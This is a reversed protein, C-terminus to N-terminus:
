NDVSRISIDVNLVEKVHRAVECAKEFVAWSCADEPNLTTRLGNGVPEYCAAVYEPNPRNIVLSYRPM